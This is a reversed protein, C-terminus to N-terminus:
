GLQMAADAVLSLVEMELQGCLQGPIVLDDADFIQIEGAHFSQPCATFNGIKTEGRKDRDQLMLGGFGAACYDLNIPPIWTTFFAVTAACNVFFQLETVPDPSTTAADGM